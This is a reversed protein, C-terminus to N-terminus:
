SAPGVNLWCRTYADIDLAPLYPYVCQHLVRNWMNKNVFEAIIYFTSVSPYSIFHQQTKIAAIYNVNVAIDSIKLSLVTASNYYSNEHIKSEFIYM